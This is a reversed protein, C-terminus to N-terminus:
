FSCRFVLDEDNGLHLEVAARGPQQHWATSSPSEKQRLSRRSPARPGTQKTAVWVSTMHHLRLQAGGQGRRWASTAPTTCGLARRLVAAVAHASCTHASKRCPTCSTSLSAGAPDAAIPIHERRPSKEGCRKGKLLARHDLCQHSRNESVWILESSRVSLEKYESTHIM